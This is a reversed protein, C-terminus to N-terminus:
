STIALNCSSQEMKEQGIDLALELQDLSYLSEWNARQYVIGKRTKRPYLACPRVWAMNGNIRTIAKLSGIERNFVPHHVRTVRVLQGVEFQCTASM